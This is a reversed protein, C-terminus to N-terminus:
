KKLAEEVRQQLVGFGKTSVDQIMLMESLRRDLAQWTEEYEPSHDSLMYLETSCYVAALMGRQTYWRVDTTQEGSAHWASDLLEFLYKLSHPLNSPRAAISLAQPWTDIYPHVMELRMRLATALRHRTEKMGMIDANRRELETEFQHNWLKMAHEVLEAERRKILGTSAPSINLEAAAAELAAQSWGCRKVHGLASNLLALRLDSTDERNSTSPDSQQFGEFSQISQNCFSQSIRFATINAFAPPLSYKAHFYLKEIVPMAIQM